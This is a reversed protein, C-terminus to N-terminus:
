ATQCKASVRLVTHPFSIFYNDRFNHILFPHQCVRQTFFHNSKLQILNKRRLEWVLHWDRVNALRMFCGVRTGDAGNIGRILLTMFTLWNPTKTGDKRGASGLNLPGMLLEVTGTPRSARSVHITWSRTLKLTAQSRTSVCVM